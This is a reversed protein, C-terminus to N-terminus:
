FGNRELDVIRVLMSRGRDFTLEEFGFRRYLDRVGDDLPHTLVGFCGIDRSFRVAVGFAYRM